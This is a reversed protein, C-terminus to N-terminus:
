WLALLRILGFSIAALLLLSATVAMMIRGGSGAVAKLDTGLGLAAMSIITLASAVLATPRLLAIPILDVARLLSLLAFGVIFWPLLRHLHPGRDAKGKAAGDPAGLSRNLLSLIFVVPGLMLVRTLKVLTGVQVATAGVPATAALVQPVAYVTLGALVGFAKQDVSLLPVLAPLILVLGVGIVATFGISATIDRGSAGIVPAVAAIASNGCISNGCAILVAMRHPLGLVRGIGYSAILALCVVGFIGGLLAPGSALAARSDLSAGLLVVAIELLTKGSFAVGRSWRPGPTWLSRVAAGFLIALVLAELWDHGFVTEEGHAIAFDAATVVGCLAVGPGIARVWDDCRSILGKAMDMM